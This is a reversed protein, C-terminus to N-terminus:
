RRTQIATVTGNTFYVYHGIGYVWQEFRGSARTTANIKEPHGWAMRAQEMTMGIKLSRDIVAATIDMPWGKAVISARRPQDAKEAAARRERAEAQRERELRRGSTIERLGVIVTQVNPTAAGIGRTFWKRAPFRDTVPRPLLPAGAADTPMIELYIDEIPEGDSTQSANITGTLYLLGHEVEIILTAELGTKNIVDIPPSAYAAVSVGAVFLFFILGVRIALM